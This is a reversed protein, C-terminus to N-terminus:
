HMYIKRIFEAINSSIFMLSIFIRRNIKAIMNLFVKRTLIIVVDMNRDGPTYFKLKYTPM